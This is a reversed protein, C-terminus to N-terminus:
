WRKGFYYGYDDLSEYINLDDQRNHLSGKESELLEQKLDQESKNNNDNNNDDSPQNDDNDNNSLQEQLSTIEDKLNDAKTDKKTNDYRSTCDDEYLFEKAKELENIAEIKNTTKINKVYALALNVRISCRKDKPPNSKLALEYGSIANDYEKKKYEINASNYYAIYPENINLFYLTKSLKLLYLDNNYALKIVENTIFRMSFFSTVITMSILILKITKKKNMM